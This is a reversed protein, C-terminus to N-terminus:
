LKKIAIEGENVFAMSSDSEKSQLVEEPLLSFLGAIRLQIPKFNAAYIFASEDGLCGAHVIGRVTGLVIINGVAFIQSGPNADGIVIISGSYKLIQGNRLNGHHFHVDKSFDSVVESLNMNAPQKKIKNDIWLNTEEKILNLLVEHEVQSLDRGDFILSSKANNLFDKSETLTEKLDNKIVEFDVKDNLSVHIGESTGKLKVNKQM